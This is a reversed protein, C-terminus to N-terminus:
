RRIRDIRRLRIRLRFGRAKSLATDRRRRPGLWAWAADLLTCWERLRSPTVRVWCYGGFGGHLNGGHDFLVRFEIDGVSLSTHAPRTCHRPLIARGKSWPTTRLPEPATYACPPGSGVRALTFLENGQDNSGFNFTTAISIINDLANLCGFFLLINRQSRRVGM